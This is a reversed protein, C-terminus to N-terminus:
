EQIILSCKGSPFAKIIIVVKTLVENNLYITYKPLYTPLHNHLIQRKALATFLFTIFQQGSGPDASAM